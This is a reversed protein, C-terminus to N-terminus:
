LSSFSSVCPDKKSADNLLLAPLKHSTTLGKDCRCDKEFYMNEDAGSECNNSYLFLVYVDYRTPMLVWSRPQRCVGTSSISWEANCRWSGSLSRKVQGRYLLKRLILHIAATSQWMLVSLPIKSKNTKTQVHWERREAGHCSSEVSTERDVVMLWLLNVTELLSPSGRGASM